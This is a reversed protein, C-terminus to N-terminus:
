NTYLKICACSASLQVYTIIVFLLMSMLVIEITAIYNTWKVHKANYLYEWVIYYMYYPIKRPRYSCIRSNEAQTAVFALLEGGVWGWGWVWLKNQITRSIWAASQSFWSYWFLVAVSNHLLVTESMLILWDIMCSLLCSCCISQLNWQWLKLQM